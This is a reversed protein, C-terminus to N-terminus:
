GLKEINSKTIAKQNKTPDNNADFFFLWGPYIPKEYYPPQNMGIGNEVIYVWVIDSNSFRKNHKM